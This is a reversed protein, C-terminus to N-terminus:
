EIAEAIAAQAHGLARAPVAGAFPRMARAPRRLVGYCILFTCVYAYALITM